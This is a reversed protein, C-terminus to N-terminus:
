GVAEDRAAAPHIQLIRERQQGVLLRPLPVRRLLARLVVVQVVVRHQQARLQEGLHRVGAPAARAPQVVQRGLPRLPVQEAVARQGGRAVLVGGVGERWDAGVRLANEAARALQRSLDRGYRVLHEVRRRQLHAAVCRARPLARRGGAGGGERWAAAGVRTPDLTTRPGAM